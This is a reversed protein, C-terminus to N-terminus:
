QTVGFYMKELCFPSSSICFINCSALFGLSALLKQHSAPQRQRTELVSQGDPGGWWDNRMNKQWSKYNVGMCNQAVSWKRAPARSHSCAVVGANASEQWAEAKRTCFLKMSRSLVRFRPKNHSELTCKELCFPFGFPIWQSSAGWRPSGSKVFDIVKKSLTVDWQWKNSLAPTWTNIRTCTPFCFLLIRGIELAFHAFEVCFAGLTESSQSAAESSDWSRVACWSRRM